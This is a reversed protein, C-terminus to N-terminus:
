PRKVYLSAQAAAFWDPYGTMGIIMRRRFLHSGYHPAVLKSSPWGKISWFLPTVCYAYSWNEPHEYDEYYDADYDRGSGRLKAAQWGGTGCFGIDASKAINSALVQSSVIQEDTILGEKLARALSVPSVM